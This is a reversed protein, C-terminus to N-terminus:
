VYYHHSFKGHSCDHIFSHLVFMTKTSMKFEYWSSSHNCSLRKSNNEALPHGKRTLVRRCLLLAAAWLTESTIWCFLSPYFLM